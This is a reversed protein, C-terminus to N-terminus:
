VRGHDEAAITESGRSQRSCSPVGDPLAARQLGAARQFRGSAQFRALVEGILTNGGPLRMAGKPGVLMDTARVGPAVPGPRTDSGALIILPLPKTM